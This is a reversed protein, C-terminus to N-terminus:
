QDLLLVLSKKKRFKHLIQLPTEPSAGSWSRTQRETLTNGEEEKGEETKGGRGTERSVGERRRRWQGQWPCLENVRFTYTTPAVGRCDMTEFYLKWLNSDILVFGKLVINVRCLTLSFPLCIKQKAVINLINNSGGSAKVRWIM